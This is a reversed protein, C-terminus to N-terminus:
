LTNLLCYSLSFQVKFEGLSESMHAQSSLTYILNGHRLKNNRGYILKCLKCLGILMIYSSQLFVFCLNINTGRKSLFIRLAIKWRWKWNRPRIFYKKYDKEKNKGKKLYKIESESSFSSHQIHWSSKNKVFAASLLCISIIKRYRTIHVLLTLLRRAHKSDCM